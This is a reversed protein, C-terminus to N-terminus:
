VFENGQFASSLWHYSFKWQFMDCEVHSVLQQLQCREIHHLETSFRCRVCVFVNDVLRLCMSVNLCSCEGNVLIQLSENNKQGVEPITYECVYWGEDHVSANKVYLKQQGNSEQSTTNTADTLLPIPTGDARKWNLKLADNYGTTDPSVGCLIAEPLDFGEDVYMTTINSQNYLIGVDLEAVVFTADIKRFALFFVM